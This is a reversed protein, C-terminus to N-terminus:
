NQVNVTLVNSKFSQLDGIKGIAQVAYTGNPFSATRWGIELDNGPDELTMTTSEGDRTVVMKISTLPVKDEVVAIKFYVRDKVPATNDFNPTLNVTLNQPNNVVLAKSFWPTGGDVLVDCVGDPLKTTDVQATLTAADLGGALAQTGCKLSFTSKQFSKIKAAKVTVTGRVAEGYAPKEIRLSQSPVVPDLVFGQNGVGSKDGYAIRFYGKEGWDTGWSNKVIWYQEADNYGVITIAHGGALEGTVYKYIGGTYYMFDEYVQMTGMVPGKQLMGKVGDPDSGMQPVATTRRSSFDSCKNANPVDEGKRGSTYPFCAEDTAGSMMEWLALLPTAGQDCQGLRSFLDQESLDMRFDSVGSAVAIRGEVAALTGFAVCSGCKGQNRVGTLWSKGDKNRWDLSAPLRGAPRVAQRVKFGPIRTPEKGIGFFIKGDKLQVGVDPRVDGATWKADPSKSLADKVDQSSMAFVTSSLFLATLLLGLRM